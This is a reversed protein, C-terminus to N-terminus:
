KNLFNKFVSTIKEETSDFSGSTLFFLKLGNLGAHRDLYRLGFYIAPELGGFVEINPDIVDDQFEDQEQFFIEEEIIQAFFSSHDGICILLEPALEGVLQAYGLLEDKELGSIEWCIVAGPPIENILPNSFILEDADIEVMLVKLENDNTM